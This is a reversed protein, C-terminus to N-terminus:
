IKLWSFLISFAADAIIILFIAIVVSKTTEYGLSESSGSVRFGHFCGVLSIILAFVPAKIFGIMFTTLTVNSPFTSIFTDYNIGLISKSMVMGGLVGFIDAWVTLLPMAILLGLVRPFVLMASPSYGMTRLADVEENVQMLGLHATFASGTRGALIIATILPGFERFIALGLLSIIFINAGYSRLELGIQYTLVVGILFTLFGIIPLARFGNDEIISFLYKWRIQKPNCILHWFTIAFEGIFSLWLHGLLAKDVSAKGVRYLWTTKVEPIQISFEKARSKVLALLDNHEATFDQLQYQVDNKQLLQLWKFLYWAGATDMEQILNGEVVINKPLKRADPFHSKPLKEIGALTWNGACSIKNADTHIKALENM